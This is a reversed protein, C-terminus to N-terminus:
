RSANLASAIARAQQLRTTYGYKRLITSTSSRSTLDTIFGKKVKRSKKAEAIYEVLTDRRREITTDGIGRAFAVTPFRSMRERHTWGGHMMKSVEVGNNRSYGNRDVLSQQRGEVTIGFSDDLLFTRITRILKAPTLGSRTVTSYESCNDTWESYNNQLISEMLRVELNEPTAKYGFGYEFCYRINVTRLTFMMFMLEDATINSPNVKYARLDERQLYSGRAVSGRQLQDLELKTLKTFYKGVITHKLLADHYTNRDEASVGVFEMDSIYIIEEVDHADVHTRNHSWRIMDTLNHLGGFCGGTYNYTESYSQGNLKIGYRVAM